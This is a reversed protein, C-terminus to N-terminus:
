DTNLDDKLIIEINTLTNRMNKLVAKITEKRAKKKEENSEWKECVNDSPMNHKRINWSIEGNMCHGQGLKNFSVGSYVYHVCFFKCNVCKKEQEM